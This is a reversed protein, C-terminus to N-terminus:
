IIDFPYGGDNYARDAIAKRLEDDNKEFAAVNDALRKEAASVFVTTLDIERRAGEEGRQELARTTRSLVSAIAFLDIAMDAVRKQTYQMEAIDKGFKRLAKDVNKALEVTYEEFVVAERNLVPHARTFRERGLATRAKRIAFDSLLGFGKIPERMARAVEVLQRGPGQMGSLAIFCRLIENTGEFILNIRADRLHREYSYEQMYGVGAAIQLSENVIKWLTESGYVKCIASEVSYDAVNSDILGTTLYTMSELAFTGAMMQAIKDKILGFEGIPRGFAKRERAREVSLKILRKALGISGSAVGLRGNNLVEMAVKFGRGVEGLVNEIPVKVDEFYVETTSSGRIGLKHENPGTRVGMGREVVFATIRPKAGHEAPSTRAFVTFLDAFGGNSIWIKSGNLTFYRGDDSLEARTQIAAADSGASPETLAFAAVCEGTALKPLYKKKLEESGFLLIGKMGISQHAGLTVALSGELGSVEQMVRAYATASLGIGGYDNPVLLGFLGLDKIGQLVDDPVLAERDIKQADVNQAFYKRVSDLMIHLNNTEAPLPEPYPVILNDAIVGHFLSKMFSQEIM